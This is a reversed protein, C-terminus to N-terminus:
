ISIKADTLTPFMMSNIARNKIEKFMAGKGMEVTEHAEKIGQQILGEINEKSFNIPIFGDNPFAGKPIVLYRFNIKPFNVLGQTIWIM